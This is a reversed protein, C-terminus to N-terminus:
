VRVDAIWARATWSAFWGALKSEFVDEAVRTARAARECAQELTAGRALEDLLAFAEPEVDAFQLTDPGRYVAVFSPKPLPREAADGVRVAHRYEHAPHALALRQLAPHLVLRAAPWADEPVSAIVSPDLPPVDPADFAEVFAWEVRALDAVLADDAWPAAQAVFGAMAHGLDRLTFSGPPHAALYARALEEFGDDGLLREISVFDDRLADVHRLFFQERYIDIQEVPALRDNGRAIRSAVPEHVEDGVLSRPERLMKALSSQISALDAITM